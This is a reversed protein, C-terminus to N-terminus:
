EIHDILVGTTQRLRLGILKAVGMMLKLAIAPHDIALKDFKSRSVLLFTTKEAAVATASYALGDLWSLEGISKGNRVSHIKVKGNEEQDTSKFLDIKGDIVIFLSDGRDGERCLVYGAPARYAQTYEAIKNIEAPKLEGFLQAKEVLERLILKQSLGADVRELRGPDSASEAKKDVTTM